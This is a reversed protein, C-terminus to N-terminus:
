WTLSTEDLGSDSSFDNNEDLDFAKVLLSLAPAAAGGMFVAAWGTISVLDAKLGTLVASDIGPFFTLTTSNSVSAIKM